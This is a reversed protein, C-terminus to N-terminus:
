CIFFPPPGRGNALFLYESVPNIQFGSNIVAFFSRVPLKSFGFPLWSPPMSLELSLCHVHHDSVASNGDVVALDVTDEHSSLLHWVEVPVVWQLTIALLLLALIKPLRKKM